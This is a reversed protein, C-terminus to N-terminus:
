KEELMILVDTNLKRKIILIGFIGRCSIEDAIVLIACNTNM